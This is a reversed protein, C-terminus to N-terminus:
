VWSPPSSGYAWFRLWIWQQLQSELGATTSSMDIATSGAILGSANNVVQQSVDFVAM